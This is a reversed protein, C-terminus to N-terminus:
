LCQRVCSLIVNTCEILNDSAKGHSLGCACLLRQWGNQQVALVLLPYDFLRVLSSPVPRFSVVLVVGWGWDTSGERVRVLRGPALFPRCVEPRIMTAHVTATLQAKENHLQM